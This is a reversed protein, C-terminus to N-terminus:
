FFYKGKRSKKSKGHNAFIAHINNYKLYSSQISPLYKRKGDGFVDEFASGPVLRSLFDLYLHASRCLFSLNMMQPQTQSPKAQCSCFAPPLGIGPNNEHLYSCSSFLRQEM